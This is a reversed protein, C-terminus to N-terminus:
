PRPRSVTFPATYTTGGAGSQTPNTGDTTYRIVSSARVAPTPRRRAVGVGTATFTARARAATARSRRPPRRTTPRRAARRRRHGRRRDDRRHRQSARSAIFDLLQNFQAPPISYYDCNAGPHLHRPVRAAGLRRRQERGPHRLGRAGLAAHGPRREAAHAHRVRERPPITEAYPCHRRLRRALHHRERRAGVHLRLEPRHELADPQQARLPLRLEHRQLGAGAARHPRQLGRRDRGVTSLTPLDAHDITHGGIENGDNALDHLQAWSM